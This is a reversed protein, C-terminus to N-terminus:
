TKVTWLNGIGPEQKDYGAKVPYSNATM